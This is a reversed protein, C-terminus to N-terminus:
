RTLPAGRRRRDPQGRDATPPEAEAPPTPRPQCRRGSTEPESEVVAETADATPSSEAPDEAVAVAGGTEEPAQISESATAEPEPVTGSQQEETM